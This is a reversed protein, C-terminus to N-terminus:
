WYGWNGTALIWAGLLGNTVSHALIAAWLTNSRMYLLGYAMGAIMGALWLNHEVGFLIVTAVLPRMTVHAPKVELFDNRELWRLLFSRWFLEEMLPVVLAAGALRVVILWLMLRGQADRPDFGASEGVVMWGTDLNLWVLLVLVGALLSVAAVGASLRAHWLEGYSSRFYWLLGVVVAIKLPYLYRLDAEAVGLRQLVDAILIFAMYAAFPLVRALTSREFM